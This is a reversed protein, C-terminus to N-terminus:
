LKRVSNELYHFFIQFIIRIGLIYKYMECCSVEAKGASEKTSVQM